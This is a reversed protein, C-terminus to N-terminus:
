FRTNGGRGRVAAECRRSMSLILQSIENQHLGRWIQRVGVEHLNNPQIPKARLRRVPSREPSLM